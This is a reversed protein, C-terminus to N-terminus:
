IVTAYSTKFVQVRPEEEMIVNRGIRESISDGHEEVYKKGWEIAKNEAQEKASEFVLINLRLIHIIKIGNAAIDPFTLVIRADWFLKEQQKGKFLKEQQKEEM